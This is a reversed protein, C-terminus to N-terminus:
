KGNSKSTLNNFHLQLKKLWTKASETLCIFYIDSPHYSNCISLVYIFECFM